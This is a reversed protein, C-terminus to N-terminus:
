PLSRGVFDIVTKYLDDGYGPGHMAYWPQAPDWWYYGEGWYEGPPEEAPERFVYHAWAAEDWDECPLTPPSFSWWHGDACGNFGIINDGPPCSGEHPAPWLPDGGMYPMVTDGGTLFRVFHGEFGRGWEGEPEATLLHFEYNVFLVDVRILGEDPLGEPRIEKYVTREQVWWENKWGPIKDRANVRVKFWGTGESTVNAFAYKGDSDTTTTDVQEWDGDIYEYLAVPAGSQVHLAGDGGLAWNESYYVLGASTIPVASVPLFAVAASLIRLTKM